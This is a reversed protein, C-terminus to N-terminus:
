AAMYDKTGQALHPNLITPAQWFLLKLTGTGSSAAKSAAAPAAETARPASTAGTADKPEFIATPTPVAPAAPTCAALLSVGALRVGLRLMARRSLRSRGSVDRGPQCQHDGQSEAREM